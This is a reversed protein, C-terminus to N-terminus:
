ARWSRRGTTNDQAREVGVDGFFLDAEQLRAIVDNEEGVADGLRAVGGTIEKVIFSQFGDDGAATPVAGLLQQRGNDGGDIFERAARGLGVIEGHNHHPTLQQGSRDGSRVPQRPAM